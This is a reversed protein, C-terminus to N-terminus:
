VTGVIEEFAVSNKVAILRLDVGEVLLSPKIYADAKLIKQGVVEETNNEEDCKFVYRYIGRNGKVLALAPNVINRVQARTIEDNHEFLIFKLAEKLIKKLHIFLFRVNMDAFVSEKQLMTKQSYLIYGSGKDRFVFNIRNMHLEDRQGEKPLWSVKEARRYHGRNYGAPVNWLNIEGHTKAYLGADTGTSPIWRYKRNFRDHIYIWTPNFHGYSSSFFSTGYALVDKHENGRNNVTLARPAGVFTVSDTRDQSLNLLYNSLTKDLVTDIVYTVDFDDKDRFVEYCSQYESSSPVNGDSGLGMKWIGFFDLPKTVRVMATRENIAAVYYNSTGDESLAGPELSLFSYVEMASDKTGTIGGDHDFVVAHVETMNGFARLLTASNPRGLIVKIAAAVPPFGYEIEINALGVFPVSNDHFTFSYGGPVSQLQVEAATAPATTVLTKAVGDLKVSSTTITLAKSTTITFVKTVGNGNLAVYDTGIILTKTAPDIDFYGSPVRTDTDFRPSLSAGNVTVVASFLDLGNANALTYRSQLGTGVFTEAVTHLTLVNSTVVGGSRVLSYQGPLAGEKLEANGYTLVFDSATVIENPVVFTQTTDTTTVPISLIASDSAPPVFFRDQFYNGYFEAARMITIGLSNGLAGPYKAIIPPLEVAREEFEADNKVLFNRRSTTDSGTATFYGTGTSLLEVELVAGAGDVKRILVESKVVGDDIEVIDGASYELGEDNVAISVVEGNVANIDLSLGSGNGGVIANRATESVVRVARLSGSESLFEDAVFWDRFNRDNPYWYRNILSSEDTILTVDEAPGWSFDCVIAGSLTSAAAAASITLDIERPYVGPSRYLSM